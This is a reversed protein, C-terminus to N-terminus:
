NAERSKGPWSRGNVWAQFVSASLKEVAMTLLERPRFNLFLPLPQNIILLVVLYIILLTRSQLFTGIFMWIFPQHFGWDAKIPVNNKENSESAIDLIPLSDQSGPVVNPYRNPHGNPYHSPLNKPVSNPQNSLSVPLYGSSAGSFGPNTEFSGSPPYSVLPHNGTQNPNGSLSPLPITSPIRGTTRNGPSSRMKRTFFRKPAKESKKREGQGKRKKEKGKKKGKERKEILLYILFLSFGYSGM